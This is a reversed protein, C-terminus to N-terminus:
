GRPSEEGRLATRAQLVAAESPELMPGIKLEGEHKNWSCERHLRELAKHEREYRAILAAAASLKYRTVMPIDLKHTAVQDVAYILDAVKYETGDEHRYKM